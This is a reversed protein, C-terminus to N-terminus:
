QKQSQSLDPDVMNLNVFDFVLIVKRFYDSPVVDFNRNPKWRLAGM